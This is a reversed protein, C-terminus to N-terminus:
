RFLGRAMATAAFVMAVVLAAQAYSIRSFLPARSLDPAEKRKLAARWRVLGLMPVMELLFILVFLSMKVRFATSDLYYESGKELGGFARWLGTSVWLLAALGWFGDATLARKVEPTGRLAAGRVCVAGFGIALALLHISAVLWRLTM